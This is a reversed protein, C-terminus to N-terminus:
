HLVLDRFVFDRTGLGLDRTRLEVNVAYPPHLFRGVFLTDVNM